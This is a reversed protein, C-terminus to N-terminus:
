GSRATGGSRRGSGSRATGVQLSLMFFPVSVSTSQPPVQGLWHASPLLQMRPASQWLLLQVLLLHSTGEQVSTSLFPWSVSTSQPPIQGFLHAFPCIHAPAASQTLANQEFLMHLVGTDHLLLM